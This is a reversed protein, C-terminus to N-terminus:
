ELSQSKNLSFCNKENMKNAKYHSQVTLMNCTMFYTGHKHYSKGRKRKKKEKKKREKKKTEKSEVTFRLESEPCSPPFCVRGWTSVLVM